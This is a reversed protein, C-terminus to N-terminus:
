RVPELLGIAQRALQTLWPRSLRFGADMLRQHQRYLPLHYAFKDILLGALFSM